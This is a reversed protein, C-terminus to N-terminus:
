RMSNTPLDEVPITRLRCITRRGDKEVDIAGSDAMIGITRSVNPQAMGTMEALEGISASGASRLARKIRLAAESMARRAARETDDSDLSTAAARKLDRHYRAVIERAAYDFFGYALRRLVERSRARQDFPLRVASVCYIPRGARPVVFDEFGDHLRIDPPFPLTVVNRMGASQVLDDFAIQRGAPVTYYAPPLVPALDLIEPHM